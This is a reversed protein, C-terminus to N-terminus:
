GKNINVRKLWGRAFKEQTPSKKMYNIYHVGQLINMIKLLYLAEDMYFYSRLANMTASGFKGDEVVDPYNTQNRNLLNLATQLFKVSRSLGMNVATDFLENAVPQSIIEDGLFRDWYNSRYFESVNSDLAPDYILNGPFGTDQKAIDIIIWGDWSPHYRRSI